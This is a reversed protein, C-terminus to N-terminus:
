PARGQARGVCSLKWLGSAIHESAHGRRHGVGNFGRRRRRHGSQRFAIRLSCHPYWVLHNRCSHALSLACSYPHESSSSSSLTNCAHEQQYTNTSSRRNKNRQCFLTRLISRRSLALKRRSGLQLAARRETTACLEAAAHPVIVFAAVRAAAPDDAWNDGTNSRPAVLISGKDLLHLVLVQPVEHKTTDACNTM